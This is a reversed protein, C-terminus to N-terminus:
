EVAIRVEPGPIWAANIRLTALGKATNDPLKFNVQYADLSGPYGTAAMVEGASGNVLIEIPSNVPQLPSAPFLQGPEVGPRTPGLHRAFLSLVEGARAPKSASVVTFDSSHVVAPGNSTTVIEPVYMPILNCLSGWEDGGRERRKLPDEAVSAAGRSPPQGPRQFATCFGRAGLFAGTGGVIAFNGSGWGSPAGPPVPGFSFGQLMLSGVATGDPQLIEVIQTGQTLRGNVDSIARGNPPNTSNTSLRVVNEWSTNVGKAPKGNVSVVDAISIWSRFNQGGAIPATRGQATAYDTYPTADVVYFVLDQAIWEFRVGSAVQANLAGSSALSGLVAIVSTTGTRMAIKM